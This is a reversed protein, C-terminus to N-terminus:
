KRIKINNDTQVIVFAVIDVDIDNMRRKARIVGIPFGNKLRIIKETVLDIDNPISDNPFQDAIKKLLENARDSTVTIREDVEGLKDNYYRLTISYINSPQLGEKHWQVTKIKAGGKTVEDKISGTLVMTKDNPQIFEDGFHWSYYGTISEAGYM